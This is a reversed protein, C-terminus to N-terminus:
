LVKEGHAFLVVDAVLKDVDKGQKARNIKDRFQEAKAPYQFNDVITEIALKKKKVLDREAWVIKAEEDFKRSATAIFREQERKRLERKTLLM